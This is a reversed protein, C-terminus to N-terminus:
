LSKVFLKVAKYENAPLNKLKHHLVVTVDAQTRGILAPIDTNSIYVRNHHLIAVTSLIM